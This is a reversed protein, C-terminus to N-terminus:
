PGLGIVSSLINRNELLRWLQIKGSFTVALYADTQRPRSIDAHFLLDVSEISQNAARINIIRNTSIPQPALSRASKCEKVQIEVPDSIITPDSKSM